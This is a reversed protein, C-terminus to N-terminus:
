NQVEFHMNVRTQMSNMLPQWKFVSPLTFTDRPLPAVMVTFTHKFAATVTNSKSLLASCLYVVNVMKVM